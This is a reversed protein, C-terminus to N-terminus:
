YKERDKRPVQNFVPVINTSISVLHGLVPVAFYEGHSRLVINVPAKKLDTDTERRLRYKTWDGADFYRLNFLRLTVSM